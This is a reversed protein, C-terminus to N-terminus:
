KGLGRQDKQSIAVNIASMIFEQESNSLEHWHSRLFVIIAPDENESETEYSAEPGLYDSMKFLDFPDEGMANALKRITKPRPQVGQKLIANLTSRPIEARAALDAQTSRQSQLWFEIYDVLDM